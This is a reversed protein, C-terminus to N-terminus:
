IPLLGDSLFRLEKEPRTAQREWGPFGGFRFAIRLYGVFTTQHPENNLMADAAAAPLRLNYGKDIEEDAVTLEAKTIADWGLMVDVEDASDGEGRSDLWQEGQFMLDDLSIMLPDALACSSNSHRWFCLAPHAGSLNIDGVVEAWAKLSLPIALGKKELKRLLAITKAAPPSFVIEDDLPSAVPSLPPAKVDRMAEATATMAKAKELLNGFRQQFVASQGPPSHKMASAYLAEVSSLNVRPRVPGHRGNWFEYGIQDLRGVITEINRRARRMTEQAVLWAPELYPNSRVNPGLSVMETWVAEHEGAQYRSLWQAASAQDIMIGKM